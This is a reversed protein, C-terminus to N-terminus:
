EPPPPKNLALVIGPIINMICTIPWAISDYLREVSNHRAGYKVADWDSQIEKHGYLTDERYRILYHKSECYTGYANYALLCSIYLKSSFVITPKFKTINAWM